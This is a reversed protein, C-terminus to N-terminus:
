IIPDAAVDNSEMRMYADIAASFAAFGACGIAMAQPGASKALFGGTFCGAAVGNALDNKGRFGEIVCESGSYVGGIYGFNKASSWSSKGMDKFGAKIQQRMPIKEIEAAASGPIASSMPTDYRMSAMFLGFLGGLGFGMGGALAMKVPCSEMGSQMLKIMQQEQIKQPDMGASAGGGM